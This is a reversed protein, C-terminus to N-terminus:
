KPAELPLSFGRSDCSGRAAKAKKQRCLKGSSRAFRPKPFPTGHSFCGGPATHGHEGKETPSCCLSSPPRTSQTVMLGLTGTRSPHPLPRTRSHGRPSQTPEWPVALWPFQSRSWASLHPLPKFADGHAGPSAPPSSPPSPPLLCRASGSSSPSLWRVAPPPPRLAACSPNGPM